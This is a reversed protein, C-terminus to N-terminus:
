TKGGYEPGNVILIEPAVAESTGRGGMTNQRSLNKKMACDIFTWGEYLQRIRECDYYSVVIRAEKFTKLIRSLREHDDEATPTKDFLSTGASTTKSTLEHVYRSFGGSDHYGSRTEPLYTPDAYIATKPGDWLLGLCTFFDRRLIIVNKLRYHWDPISESVSNWRVAPSGGGLSYRMALAHKAGRNRFSTGAIGNRGMWCLVVYWYAAEVNPAPEDFHEDYHNAAEQFIDESFMTRAVRGYLDFAMSEDKLVWALNTLAGHLDIVTEHACSEKALLVSMSGCFPEFYAVHDGLQEIIKPAMTRKGGFYPLIAKLKM